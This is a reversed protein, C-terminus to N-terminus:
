LREAIGTIESRAQEVTSGPRLRGFVLWGKSGRGEEGTLDSPRFVEVMAPLMEFDEPMVGIVTYPTGDLTLTRGLVEPDGDFHQRWYRHTIVVVDGTGPAGEEPRFGRGQAPQLQLVEFMNPTGLATQVEEPMDVGTVNATPFGLATMQSFNNTGDRWDRFNPVSANAAMDISEGHRLERILVLGNQDGFPLPELWFASALAFMATAAAIGLALSLAAIGSVVPTKASMRLGFKLDFLFTNMFQIGPVCPPQAM